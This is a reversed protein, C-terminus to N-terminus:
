PGPRQCVLSLRRGNKSVVISATVPMVYLHVDECAASREWAPWVAQYISRVYLSGEYAWVQVGPDAPRTRLRVAGKPPVGHVFALLEESVPEQVPGLVPTRAGPGEKQVRFITLADNLRGERRGSGTVLHLVVPYEAGELTLVLNSSAHNRLPVLNVIHSHVNREGQEAEAGKGRNEGAAAAEVRPQSVAYARANGLIASLVPWPAGTVDQFLLTSSYGATLHIVPPEDQVSGSLTRTHTRMRAPDPLAANDLREKQDLYTRVEDPGLPLLDELSRAFAEEHQQHRLAEAKKEAAEAAERADADAGAPVRATGQTRAATGTAEDQLQLSGPDKQAGQAPVPAPDEPVLASQTQAALAESGALVVLCLIWASVLLRFVLVPLLFPTIRRGTQGRNRPTLSGEPQEAPGPKGPMKTGPIGPMASMRITARGQSAGETDAGRLSSGAFFARNALSGARLRCPIHGRPLQVRLLRRGAPCFGTGSCPRHQIRAHDM